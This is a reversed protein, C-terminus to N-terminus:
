HRGGNLFGGTGCSLVVGKKRWHIILFCTLLCLGLENKQEEKDQIAATKTKFSQFIGYYFLTKTVKNDGTDIFSHPGVEM